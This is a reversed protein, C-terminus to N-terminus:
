VSAVANHLRIAEDIAAKIATPLEPVSHKTYGDNTINPEDSVELIILTTKIKILM